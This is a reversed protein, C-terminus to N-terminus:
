MRFDVKASPHDWVLACLGYSLGYQEHCADLYVAFRDVHCDEPEHDNRSPKDTTFDMGLVDNYKACQSKYRSIMRSRSGSYVYRTDDDIYDFKNGSIYKGVNDLSERIMDTCNPMKGHEDCLNPEFACATGITIALALILKKM